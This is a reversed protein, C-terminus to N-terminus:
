PRATGQQSQMLRYLRKGLVTYRELWSAHQEPSIYGLDKAFDLHVQMENCSGLAQGVFHAFNRQTQLGYGEAINAPISKSARRMQEALVFRELDPFSLTLQHIELALRYSEQYVELDRYSPM